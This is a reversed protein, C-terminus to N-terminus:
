QRVWIRVSQGPLRLTHPLDATLRADAGRLGTLNVARDDAVLRWTGSPLRVQTFAQPAADTNVLVLVREGVIYGLLAPNAPTLFRYYDPAVATGVRFVRGAESMRLAVLGKWYALMGAYDNPRKPGDPADARVPVEGPGAGVTQWEFRNAARQNYTDRKGHFYIPGSATRIIKEELPALGKSRMIETGGHLVVPGLGTFLLTAAIRFPGEDVGRRGDWGRTAFPDALAWNDHIDLYSIGANPDHEDPFANRLALMVRARQTTDGGAYGRDRRKDTPNGTTGKFADRAEDQFFTIPADLKYWAWDPNRVTEPDSPPIWPEGYVIADAPLAAKLALLSQQDVQGALDVRFGDVGFEKMLEVCQDILWRQVMPREEFKVENGFPGIHQGRDDTRYYYLKDLANWGMSYTRGDMNEGTHNPVIDVIVALGADHFAEVLARFEAREDGPTGGPKRYRSEIAFAHTTRYGWEYYARDIGQEKAWAGLADDGGFTAQWEADPYHLFEQVPLLHVVNIGLRTLYDFGVPEGRDNRLGARTFGVFTGRENEPLPLNDTFDQVHVEYAVVDEMAPRGGRVPRPADLPRWVRSKGFSDDSVRAYPDSVTQPLQDFFMSGPGPPGDVRLDYWTGHRDGEVIAEWVGDDGRVMAVTERAGEPGTPAHRAAEDTGYLYLTLATARPSFARFATVTRAADGDGRTEIEAGLTRDSYLTRWLGDFRVAAALTDGEGPGVRVTLTHLQGPALDEAAALLTRSATNPAVHALPVAHGDWRELRYAAVGLPRTIGEGSIDVWIARPGRLEAVMRPPSVSHLFVLNGGEANPAGAIPDLWAGDDVRFKFPTGPRIAAYAPNAVALEWVHPDVRSSILHWTPDDMNTSWDRFAGTVVVRHPELGYLAADFVFHTTDTAHYYGQRRIDPAYPQGDAPRATLMLLVVFALRTALRARAPLVPFPLRPM